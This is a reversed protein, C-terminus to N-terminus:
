SHHLGAYMKRLTEGEAQRERDYWARGASGMRALRDPDGLAEHLVDALALPDSPPIVWGTEGDIVYEPLAGVATVVVPKRFCYAAAVLASQSAEVYPLAVLGCRSFLDLAEDDGVLHNHIEVNSPIGNPLLGDVRGPGAVVFTGNGPGLCRAAEILVDLGKYAELRGIMLVSPQYDVDPPSQILVRARAHGVFLHTLPTSTVQAPDIGRVVLEDRYRQGHVLLHDAMRQVWTNWGYLLRGYRSGAHPHLDHLTHITPVGSRRLVNLIWPNWLHPGAFHVLDPSLRRVLSSLRHVTPPARGIAGLSFGSDRAAVPTHIAVEPAYRDRPAHRTTVLHVEHGAGAMRNALDAAYQHM